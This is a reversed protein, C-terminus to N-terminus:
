VIWLILSISIVCTLNIWKVDVGVNVKFLILILSAIMAAISIAAIYRPSMKLFELILKPIDSM